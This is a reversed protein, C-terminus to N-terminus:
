KEGEPYTITELEIEGDCGRQPCILRDYDWGCGYMMLMFSECEPCKQNADTTMGGAGEVDGAHM